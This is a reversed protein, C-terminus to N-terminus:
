LSENISSHREFRANNNSRFRQFFNTTLYFIIKAIIVRCYEPLFNSVNKEKLFIKVNEKKYLFKKKVTTNEGQFTLNGDTVFIDDFLFSIKLSPFM